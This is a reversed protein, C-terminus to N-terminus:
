PIILTRFLERVCFLKCLPFFLPDPLPKLNMPRSCIARNNFIAANTTPAPPGGYTAFAASLHVKGFLASTSKPLLSAIRRAQRTAFAPVPTLFLNLFLQLPTPKPKFYRNSKRLLLRKRSSILISERFFACCRFPLTERLRPHPSSAMCMPRFAYFFLLYHGCAV